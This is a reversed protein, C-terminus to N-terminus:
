PRAQEIIQAPTGCAKVDSISPWRNPMSFQDPKGPFVEHSGAFDIVHQIQEPTYGNHAQTLVFDSYFLCVAQYGPKMGGSIGLQNYNSATVAYYAAIGALLAALLAAAAAVVAAAPTVWGAKGVPGNM